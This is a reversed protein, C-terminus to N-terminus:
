DFPEEMLHELGLQERRIGQRIGYQRVQEFKSTDDFHIDFVKGSFVVKMLNASVLHIYWGARITAEAIQIVTCLEAEAVEVKHFRLSRDGEGELPRLVTEVITVRSLVSLDSLSEEIIVGKWARSERSVVM